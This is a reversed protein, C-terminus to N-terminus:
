QSKKVMYDVTQRVLDESLDSRGGKALMVGAQGTFGKIAHEYLAAKGLAIRAAWAAHDGVRPAGGVGTGHCASCVAQFTEAGDHPLPLASPAAGGGAPSIALASNDHGAIAVRGVPATNEAVEAAIAQEGAARAQEFPTGIHRALGFLAIAVAVLAGIVVSFTNFFHDDQKSM